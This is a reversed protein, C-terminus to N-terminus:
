LIHERLWRDYDAAMWKSYKKVLQDKLLNFDVSHRRDSYANGFYDFSVGFLERLVTGSNGVDNFSTKAMANRMSNYQNCIMQMDFPKDLLEERVLTDINSAMAEGLIHRLKEDVGVQNMEDVMYHFERMTIKGIPPYKAAIAERIESNSMDGYLAKRYAVTAKEMNGFVSILENIYERHVLDAASNGLNSYHIAYSSLFGPFAQDYRDFIAMVKETDSMGSYDANEAIIRLQWRKADVDAYNYYKENHMQGLYYEMASRYRSLPDNPNHMVRELVESFSLPINSAVMAKVPKQIVVSFGEVVPANLYALPNYDVRQLM